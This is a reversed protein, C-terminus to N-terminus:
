NLETRIHNLNDDQQQQNKNRPIHREQVKTGQIEDEKQQRRKIAERKKKSPKGKSKNNSPTQDNDKGNHQSNDCIPGPHDTKKTENDPVQQKNQIHHQPTAHARHDLSHDIHTNDHGAHSM